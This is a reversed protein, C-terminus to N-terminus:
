IRELLRSNLICDVGDIKVEDILGVLLKTRKGVKDINIYIPKVCKLM